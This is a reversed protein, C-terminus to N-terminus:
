LQRSLTTQFAQVATYFNSANTDTIGDGISAFAIQRNSFNQSVNNFNLAGLFINLNPNSYSNTSDNNTNVYSNKYFLKALTNSTRSYQILGTGVNSNSFSSRNYIDFYSNSDISIYNTYYRALAASQAGLDTPYAGNISITRLYLSFSSNTITLTNTNLNTNMFANTGNPTVGTSAFTWGGNFTGTFSSSKLNQACAAASAGVMPYVAKMSNWIGASKMDITLQNVANAEIDTLEGGANYVRYIFAQADSDSVSQIVSITYLKAVAQGATAGTGSGLKYGIWHADYCVPVNSLKGYITKLGVVFYNLRTLNSVGGDAIIRDYIAQSEPDIDNPNAFGWIDTSTDGWKFQSKFGWVMAGKLYSSLGSSRLKNLGLGLGLM